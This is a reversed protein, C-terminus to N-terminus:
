PGRAPRAWIEVRMRRASLWFITAMACRDSPENQDALTSTTTVSAAQVSSTIQHGGGQDVNRWARLAALDDLDLRQHRVDHLGTIAAGRSAPDNWAVDDGAEGATVIPSLNEAGIQKRRDGRIGEDGEKRDRGLAALEIKFPDAVVTKGLGSRGRNGKLSM